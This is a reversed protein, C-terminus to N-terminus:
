SATYLINIAAKEQETDFKKQKIDNELGIIVFISFTTMTVVKEYCINSSTTSANIRQFSKRYKLVFM